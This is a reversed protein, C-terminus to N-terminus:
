KFVIDKVLENGVAKNLRGIINKKRFFLENRWSPNHVQIYLIGRAFKEVETMRAITDGVVSKWIKLAHHETRAQQMGYMAYLDDVIANLKRPTRQSKM